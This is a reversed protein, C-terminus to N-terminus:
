NLLVRGLSCRLDLGGDNEKAELEGVAGGACAAAAPGVVALGKTM